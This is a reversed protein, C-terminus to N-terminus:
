GDDGVEVIEVTDPIGLYRSLHAGEFDRKHTPKKQKRCRRSTTKGINMEYFRCKICRDIDFDGPEQEPCVFRYIM